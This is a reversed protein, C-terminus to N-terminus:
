SSRGARARTPRRRRRRPPRSRGPRTPRSRTAPPTRSGAPAARSRRRTRPRTRSRRTRTSRRRGRRGRRLHRDGAVLANSADRLEFPPATSRRRRGDARQLTATVDAGTDVGSQRRERALAANITPPTTDPGVDADFVVDVWYNSSTSPTPRRSLRGPATSTSATRRRRRRRGARAAAPQRAAPRRLLRQQRRLPREARPLLRRLHHRRRDRGPRRLEVQQWGSATEGTFTAEASCPAARRGSTASTPAPTAPARTSASGPSSAPRRRLPVQRRARGRQHREDAALPSPTTGSRARAAHRPEVNVTVGAGPRRSTAATTSRGRRSRRRQRDRRADLHLDLQRAGDGPALHHRRRDLGRGASRGGGGATPRPAPSRRDATGSEVNAGDLPSTITSTPPPRTPRPRRRRGPRGAAHGAPRGHRRVPEGDGAAHAADPTSGGRDHNGDLGWSWQVTGAGFVLAGSPARYLTLSHTATGPGYTSGYDQLRQPSARGHDLVPRILGAPRSGNDLDEDWEYGLTDTPSRRRRARRSRPSAPTAGSACSATPRRCRSRRPAPTSRSSRGPSRTRRARGGDPSFARTAGPAPGSTPTPISRPTPTPRRTPSSRATTPAPRRRHQEGLPDELLGRQRQLLRPQRRRRPGGRRQRAADGSWYEDHGVSLFAKHELIEAAAATATSAPPTASTTATASSGASWRTSPTSCRTRPPRAAPRSRATTASRTPAARNPGPGAPTSATAATSTTPRGPRTPPRSCSTRTATTTASSSSSTARRPPGTRRPRAQRLLHGLRRRGPGGLLGVGGLQRLRGARHDRRRPLGAPDAAPEGLAPGDRGQPRRRRRLLGDPLHRPPLRDRRHRGQLPRDPGPRRQHRHRLGPHQPRGGGSVDWESPPNGPKSNECVIANQIPPDCPAAQALEAGSGLATSLFLGLATLSVAGLARAVRPLARSAASRGSTGRGPGGFGLKARQM